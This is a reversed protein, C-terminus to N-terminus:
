FLEVFDSRYTAGSEGGRSYIQSIVIDPSVVASQARASPQPSVLLCVALLAVSRCLSLSILSSFM